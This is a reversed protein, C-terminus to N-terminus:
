LFLALRSVTCRYQHYRFIENRQSFQFLRQYLISERARFGLVKVRSREKDIAFLSGLVVTM